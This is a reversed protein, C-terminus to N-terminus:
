PWRSCPRSRRALAAAIYRSIPMGYQSSFASASIFSDAHADSREDGNDPQVSAVGRASRFGKLEDTEVAFRGLLDVGTRSAKGGLGATQVPPSCGTDQGAFLAATRSVARRRALGRSPSCM